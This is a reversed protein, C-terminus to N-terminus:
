VSQITYDLTVTAAPMSSSVATLTCSVTVLLFCTLHFHSCACFCSPAMCKVLVPVASLTCSSQATPDSALLFCFLLNYLSLSKQMCPHVAINDTVRWCHCPPLLSVLQRHCYGASDFCQILKPKNIGGVFSISDGFHSFHPLHAYRCSPDVEVPASVVPVLRLDRTRRRLSGPFTMPAGQVWGLM